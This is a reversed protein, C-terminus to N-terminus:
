IVIYDVAHFLVVINHIPLFWLSLKMLEYMCDVYSFYMYIKYMYMCMNWIIIEYM